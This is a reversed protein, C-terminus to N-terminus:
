EGRMLVMNSLKIKSPPSPKKLQKRLPKKLQKKKWWWRKEVMYDLAKDLLLAREIREGSAALSQKVEDVSLNFDDAAKKMQEDMDEETVELNMQEAVQELVLNNRVVQEAEESFDERIAELTTGAVQLYGELNMGQYMLQDEFQGLMVDVQNNIMENPIDVEASEVAKKIVEERIIQKKREDAIKELTQRTNDRLEELTDFDSVEQAFDDDIPSLERRKIEKVKVKFVAEVGALDAGHYDDPFNVRVEKEEGIKAGVM